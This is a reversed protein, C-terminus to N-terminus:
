GPLTGPLYKEAMKELVGRTHPELLHVYRQTQTLSRHGLIEGIEALSAGSMALYTACSHRLDHVHLDEIGARVCAYRWASTISVPKIGDARPFVWRSSRGVAHAELLTVAHAVLPVARRDGNKALPISLLGRVLDVESWLRQLLENKRAGTALALVVIVHLHPNRSVQCSALLRTQEDPTLCRDRGPPEAPKRVKRLPHTSIWGYDEVGATLVASLSIMYRRITNPKYYPRFRDRWARLILPSLRDLPIDGLDQAVKRYFLREQYQTQPAKQPLHDRTYAELLDALTHGPAHSLDLM